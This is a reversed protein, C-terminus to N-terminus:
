FNLDIWMVPRVCDGGSIRDGETNIQGSPKVTAARNSYCGPSRLWWICGADKDWGRQYQSETYATSQCVRESDSEFYKDVETISLLFIQDETANGPHIDFDPNKDASVTVIPIQVREDKSFASKFFDDNLWRRLNSTEWTAGNDHRYCEMDLGYKSIVLVRGDQMDLVLWEIAEKGNSINNDQEYSGFIVIDGVNVTASITEEHVVENCISCKQVKLGNKLQTAEAIVEWEELIHGFAAELEIECVTCFSSTTCTAEANAKHGLAAQLETECITCIQATTCTAAENPIHGGLSSTYNDKYIDGCSCTYTTYGKETCTPLTVSSQYSHGKASDIIASCIQCTQAVTCTAPNGSIHESATAVLMWCIQCYKDVTCFTTEVKHGFAPKVETNCMTCIQPTTCTAAAGLKHEAPALEARCVTCTQATTCTAATGPKHEAPALETRCVTCTQATTCTAAKGPIHGLSEKLEKHCVTCHQGNTCDAEPGPKHAALIVSQAVFVEDCLSCHSGETLGNETCTAAVAPDTVSVHNCAMLSNGLLVSMGAIALFAVALLIPFIKSRKKGVSAYDEASKKPHLINAIAEDLDGYFSKESANLCQMSSLATPLESPSFGECAVLLSNPKKEGKQIRKEYRTWENKLWTSTIYEPKSGYVLMVKATALANFIYPEYKEAVKDRLTERSYFVRYGKSTLHLYLAQAEYSDQTREIGKEADSDKYCIFVDYPKEKKAKELWEKRVREMYEAKEQYYRKNEKDAYKLAKRYDEDDMVSDISTAYCTPIRRGDFDEEFKAGHKAMLRGWYANANEPYRHIIDDFELEAEQFEALRLKQFATYLLTVEENSIEEQKYSGCYPCRWQGNDRVYDGGCNNCINTNM